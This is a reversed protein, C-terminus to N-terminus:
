YILERRFFAIYYIKVFEGFSVLLKSLSFGFDRELEHIKNKLFRLEPLTAFIMIV